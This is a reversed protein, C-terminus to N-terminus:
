PALDFEGGGEELADDHAHNEVAPQQRWEDIGPDVAV